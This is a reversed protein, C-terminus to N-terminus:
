QEYDICTRDCTVSKIFLGAKKHEPHEQYRSLSEKTDFSSILAIDKNSSDLPNIEVSVDIIGEVQGKLGELSEKIKLAAEKREAASLQEQFNWLVIHNVM